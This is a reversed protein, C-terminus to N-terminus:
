WLGKEGNHMGHDATLVITLNNWLQLEDIADLVRGLQKDVFTIMATYGWMLDTRVKQPIPEGISELETIDSSRKAGEGRMSRFYRDACCRYSMVPATPPFTREVDPTDWIHKRSRYMDYYAYPVHLSLHPMKFGLGVMFYEGSATGNKLGQIAETALIHDPFDTEPRTKDPMLTSNMHDWEYNQYQYWSGFLEYHYDWTEEDVEDWHLIKGFGMTKYGSRKLRTPLVLHPRWDTQFAYTGTTDPRLGTLLSDRSPNCVAVQCYAQDFVVAKKALREFNPSTVHYKGYISLEPRLDDFMIFLLNTQPVLSSGIRVGDADRDVRANKKKASKCSGLLLIFVLRRALHAIQYM